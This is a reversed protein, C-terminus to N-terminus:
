IINFGGDLPVAVVNASDEEELVFVGEQRLLFVILAIGFQVEFRVPLEAWCAFGYLQGQLM